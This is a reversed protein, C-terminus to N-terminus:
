SRRMWIEEWEDENLDTVTTPRHSWAVVEGVEGQGRETVEHELIRTRGTPSIRSSRRHFPSGAASERKWISRRVSPSSLGTIM